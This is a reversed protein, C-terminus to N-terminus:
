DHSSGQRLYAALFASIVMFPCSSCPVAFSYASSRVIEVQDVLIYLTFMNFEAFSITIRIEYPLLGLARQHRAFFELIALGVLGHIYLMDCRHFQGVAMGYINESRSMLTVSANKGERLFTM